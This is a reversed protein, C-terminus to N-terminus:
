WSITWPVDMILSVVSETARVLVLERAERCPGVRCLRRGCRRGFGWPLDLYTALTHLRAAPTPAKIIPRDGVDNAVTTFERVISSRTTVDVHWM